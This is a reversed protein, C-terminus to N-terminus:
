GSSGARAPVGSWRSVPWVVAVVRGIVDDVPVMGGGPDGLHARSDVSQSRHDGMVWLRGASVRVNFPVDSPRDGPFLYPEILPAGNVVIRGSGDCCRVEDGPLGIVRKVYDREGTAGSAFSRAGDFVVVEGRSVEPPQGTLRHQPLRDVVVRDGVDLTARMSPSPIAFVQAVFTRVLVLLVLAVLLSGAVLRSWGPRAPAERASAPLPHPETM